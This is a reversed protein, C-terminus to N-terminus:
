VTNLQKSLERGIGNDEIANIVDDNKKVSIVVKGGTEKPILVHWIANEIFPQLVLAPVKFDKLDISTDINFIFEVKDAFRMKELQAYLRCTELEEFLSIERKDSNQFLTRILKSFTTLYNAATDNENKNILSKISNLSNFIFHPNMQSRLAKAELELLEKEHKSREKEKKRISQIRRQILYIIMGTAVLICLLKFWDTQWWAPIIIITYEVPEIDWNGGQMQSKLRFVYKGPSLKTYNVERNFYNTYHWAKELPNLQYAYEIREPFFFETASFSFSINNQYYKLKIENANGSLSKIYVPITDAIITNLSPNIKESLKGINDMNFYEISKRQGVWLYNNCYAMYMTVPSSLGNKKDLLVSQKKKYNYIVIGNGGQFLMQDDGGYRM